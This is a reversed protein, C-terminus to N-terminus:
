ASWAQARRGLMLREQSMAIFQCLLTARDLDAQGFLSGDRKNSLNLVGFLVNNHVVPVSLFSDSNYNDQHTHPMGSEGVARVLLPKRNHAVWGAIGQGIRVHVREAISAAIGRSLAIQLTENRNDPAMYSFREIGFTETFWSILLAPLDQESHEQALVDCVGRIFSVTGQLEGLQNTANTLEAYADALYETAVSSQEELAFLANKVRDLEARYQDGGQDMQGLNEVLEGIMRAQEENATQLAVREEGLRQLKDQFETQVRTQVDKVQEELRGKESRYLHQALAMAAVSKVPLLEGVTKSPFANRKASVITLMAIVDESDALPVCLCSEWNNLATIPALAQAENKEARYFPSNQFVLSLVTRKQFGQFYASHHFFKRVLKPPLNDVSLDLDASMLKSNEISYISVLRDTSCEYFALTPKWDRRLAQLYSLFSSIVQTSDKSGSLKESIDRLDYRSM